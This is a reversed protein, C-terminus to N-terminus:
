LIDQLMNKIVPHNFNSLVNNSYREFGNINHKSYIYEVCNDKNIIKYYEELIKLDNETLLTAYHLIYSNINKTFEDILIQCLRKNTSAQNVRNLYDQVSYILKM